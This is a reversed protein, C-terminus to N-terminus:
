NKFAEIYSEITNVENLDIYDGVKIKGEGELIRARVERGQAGTVKLWGVSTDRLISKYVRFKSNVRVTGKEEMKQLLIKNGKIRVISALDIKGFTGDSAVLDSPPDWGDSGHNGQNRYIIARAQNTSRDPLEGPTSDSLPGAKDRGVNVSHSEKLTERRKRAMGLRTELTERLSSSDEEAELPSSGIDTAGVLVVVNQLKLFGGTREEELILEADTASVFVDGLRAGSARIVLPNPGLRDRAETRAEDLSRSYLFSQKEMVERPANSPVTGYIERGSEIFIKPSMSRALPVGRADIVLGTHRAMVPFGAAFIGLAIAAIKVSHTWKM